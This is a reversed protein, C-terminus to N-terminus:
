AAKRANSLRVRGCAAMLGQCAARLAQASGPDASAQGAPIMAKLTQETAAAVEGLVDFGYGGAAGKLQHALRTAAQVDGAEVAAHLDAMRQPMEEVFMAVIEAMDPDHEFVSFIPEHDAGVAPGQPERPNTPDAM